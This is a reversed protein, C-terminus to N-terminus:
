RAGRDAAADRRAMTAGCACVMWVVAGDVGAELEREIAQGGRGSTRHRPPQGSAPLTSGSAMGRQTPAAQLSCAGPIAEDTPSVIQLCGGGLAGGAYNSNTVLQRLGERNLDGKGSRLAPNGVVYGQGGRGGDGSYSDAVSVAAGDEGLSKAGQQERVKLVKRAGVSGVAVQEGIRACRGGVPVSHFHAAM